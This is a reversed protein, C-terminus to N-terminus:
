AYDINVEPEFDYSSILIFVIWLYPFIYSYIYSLSMVKDSAHTGKYETQISVATHQFFEMEWKGM